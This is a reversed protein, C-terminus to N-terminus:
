PKCPPETPEDSYRHPQIQQVGSQQDFDCADHLAGNLQLKLQHYQQHQFWRRLLWPEHCPQHPWIHVARMSSEFLSVAMQPALYIEILWKSSFQNNYMFYMFYMYMFYMYMFYKVMM